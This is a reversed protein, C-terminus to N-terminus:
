CTLHAALVVKKGQIVLKNFTDVAQATPQAIAEIKHKNLSDVVEMSIRVAGHAGTGFIVIEPSVNLIEQIDEKYISHGARRWWNSNIVRDWAVIVDNTYVRGNIKIRGFTYEEVRM